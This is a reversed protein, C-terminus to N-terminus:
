RRVAQDRAWAGAFMGAVFAAHAILGYGAHGLVAGGVCFLAWSAYYSVYFRM